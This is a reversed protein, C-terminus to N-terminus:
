FVLNMPGVTIELCIDGLSGHRPWGGVGEMTSRFDCNWNGGPAEQIGQDCYMETRARRSLDAGGGSKNKRYIVMGEAVWSLAFWLRIWNKM